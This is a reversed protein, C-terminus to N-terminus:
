KLFLFQVYLMHYVILIKTIAEKLINELVKINYDKVVFLGAEVFLIDNSLLVNELEFVLEQAYPNKFIVKLVYLRRYKDKDFMYPKLAEYAEKSKNESLAECALCFEKMIPSKLMDKINDFPLDYPVYSGNVSEYRM